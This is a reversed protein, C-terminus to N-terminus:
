TRVERHRAIGRVTVAGAAVAVAAALAEGIRLWITGASGKTPPATAPSQSGGGGRSAVGTTPTATAAPRNSDFAAAPPPTPPVRPAPVGPHETTASSAAPPVSTGRAPALANGAAPSAQPNSSLAGSAGAASASPTANSQAASYASLEPASTTSAGGGRAYLDVGVLVAFAVAAAAALAPMLRLSRSTTPAPSRRAPATVDAPSLRFSRSPAEDPLAALMTRVARHAAIRERCRECAATHRGVEAADEATAQGDAVASLRAATPHRRWFGLLKKV